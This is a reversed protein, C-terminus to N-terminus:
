KLRSFKKHHKKSFRQYVKVAEEVNDYYGLHYNKSDVRCQVHWKKHFSHWSVGKHGSKNTKYLKCNRSNEKHSAFRLNKRQNNLGDGDIHDVEKGKKKGLIFSHMRGNNMRGAYWKGRSLVACWRYKSVKEYDLDDILAYKNQTLKIRKM